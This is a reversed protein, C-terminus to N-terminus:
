SVLVELRRKRVVEQGGLYVSVTRAINCINESADGDVVLLDAQRGPILSGTVEGLGIAQATAGTVLHMADVPTTDLAVVASIVSLPFEHFPTDIVGADTSVVHPVGQERMYRFNAGAARIREREDAPLEDLHAMDRFPTRNMAALTM